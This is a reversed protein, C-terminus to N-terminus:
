LVLLAHINMSVGKMTNNITYVRQVSPSIFVLQYEGELVSSIVSYDGQVEGVLQTALGKRNYKSVQDMMLSVWPSVCAVISSRPTRKRLHDFVFPLLAYCLTKGYGTPLIM